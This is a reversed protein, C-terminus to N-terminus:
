APAKLLVAPVAVAARAAATSQAQAPTTRLPAVRTMPALKVNQRAQGL